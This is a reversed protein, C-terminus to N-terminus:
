VVLSSGVIDGETGLIVIVIAGDREGVLAGLATFVVAGEIDALGLAAGVAFAVAIGDSTADIAGVTVTEALGDLDGLGVGNTGTGVAAGVFFGVPIGLAIGDFAVVAGGTAVTLTLFRMSLRCIVKLPTLVM